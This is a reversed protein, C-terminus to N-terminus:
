RIAEWAKAMADGPTLTAVPETTGAAVCRVHDRYLWYRIDEAMPGTITWVADATRWRTPDTKQWGMYKVAATYAGWRERRAEWAAAM